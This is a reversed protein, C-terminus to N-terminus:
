ASYGRVPQGTNKIVGVARDDWLVEMLGDKTSTCELWRGIHQGCWASLISEMKKIDRIANGTYSFPCMRATMVKVQFGLSLWLKVRAVMEPIPSGVEYPSQRNWVDKALTGDFDVGIWRRRDHTHPVDSMCVPCSYTGKM